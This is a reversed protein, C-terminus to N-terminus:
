TSPRFAHLHLQISKGGRWENLTPTFVADVTKSVELRDAFEGMSFGIADVIYSRDKLKMKLHNSGVIRAGMVELGKAGMLPEPNGFGRPDLLDLEKMLSGNVERLEVTADITLTPILEEDSLAEEIIHNMKEEFQRLNEAKLKLGAAQKHGGYSLLLERCQSIGEYLNFPPISRASGKAIGDKVSFVFTPRYCAEAIRSAVIGIVGEHWGESALVVALNFGKEDLLTRAELYISEEINQRKRNLENLDKALKLSDNYNDSLLLEIVDNANDIRGSANMRPILTFSLLGATLKRGNLGSVERLASIGTRRGDNMLRLGEKVIVRNEDLLPVVDAITGLSALDLLDKTDNAGLLATAFKFSVVAGSILPSDGGDLRPNVVADAGPVLPNGREDKLPEHHDTVIVGIGSSAAKEVAMQSTIGCDVTVILESGTKKAHEVGPENFGYGHAMRDPIFHEVDAGLKRLAIVMIATGTMGDVDYDGHVLIRKGKRVASRILDSAENMGGLELPDRLRDISPDLFSRASDRTKLGRNILIQAFAPSVSVTRSLYAIYEPNTKQVFWRRHPM